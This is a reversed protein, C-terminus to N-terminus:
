YRASQHNSDIRAMGLGVGGGGELVSRRRRVGEGWKSLRDIYLKYLHGFLKPYHPSLM